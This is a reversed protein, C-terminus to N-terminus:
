DIGCVSMLIRSCVQYPNANAGPRRDELYGYGEQSVHRPIRISAGRDAVGHRFQHISCTEHDGTLREALKDGYIAIHEEHKNGLAAIANEIAGM